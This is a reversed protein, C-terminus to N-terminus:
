HSVVFRVTSKTTGTRVELLYYGAALNTVDFTIRHEGAKLDDSLLTAKGQGTVSFLTATVRENNVLNLFLTAQDSCPNPYVTGSLNDSGGAVPIGVTSYEADFTAIGNGSLREGSWVHAVKTLAPNIEVKPYPNVLNDDENYKDSILIWNYPDPMNQGQVLYRLKQDTYACYTVLFNNYGPDFNIDSQYDVYSTNAIDFRIWNDTNVADKNYMGIVDFDTGSGAWDRDMLVIATLYGIDNDVNNFQTSIVPNFCLNESSGAINDLQFPPTFTSNFYPDNHSVYINGESTGFGGQRWAVFYRGNSNWLCRGYSISVEAVYALTNQVTLVDTISSGGNGSIRAM